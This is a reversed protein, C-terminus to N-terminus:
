ALNGDRDFEYENAEISEKIAEDSTLYEYEKRLIIRYDESLQQKFTERCEDLKRDLEYEDEFDGNEDKPASDVIKDRFKLYAAATKYTKCEEGHNDVIKHAIEAGSDIFELECNRDFNFGKCKVGIEELESYIHDWWEYDVNLDRLSEIAKEQIDDPLEKFCYYTETHTEFRM